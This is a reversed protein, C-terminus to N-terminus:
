RYESYHKQIYSAAGEPYDYFTLYMRAIRYAIVEARSKINWWARYNTKEIEKAWARYWEPDGIPPVPPIPYQSIKELHHQELNALQQRTIANVEPLKSSVTLGLQRMPAPPLPLNRTDQERKKYHAVAVKWWAPYDFNQDDQEDADPDAREALTILDSIRRINETLSEKSM